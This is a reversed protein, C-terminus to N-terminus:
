YMARAQKRMAFAEAKAIKKIAKGVKRAMINEARTSKQFGGQASGFEPTPSLPYDRGSGTSFNINM